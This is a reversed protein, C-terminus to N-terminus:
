PFYACVRLIATSPSQLFTGQEPKVRADLFHIQRARAQGSCGSFLRAKSPRSGLMWHVRPELGLSAIVFPRPFCYRFASPPLAAPGIARVPAFLGRVLGGHGTYPIFRFRRLLFRLFLAEYAVLWFTVLWRFWPSQRIARFAQQYEKTTAM